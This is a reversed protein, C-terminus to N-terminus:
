FKENSNRKPGHTTLHKKNQRCIIKLKGATKKNDIELKNRDCESLMRQIIQITKFKIIYMKHSLSHDTKNYTGHSSSFLTNGGTMWYEIFTM